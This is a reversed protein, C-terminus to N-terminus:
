PLPLIDLHVRRAPAQTASPIAAPAAGAPATTPTDAASAPMAAPASSSIGKARAAVGSSVVPATIPTPATAAPAAPAGDAADAADAALPVASFLAAPAAPAMSAAPASSPVSAESIAPAASAPPVESRRALRAEASGSSWLSLSISAGLLIVAAACRRLQGLADAYRLSEEERQLARSLDSFLADLQPADPAAAPHVRRELARAWARQQPTLHPHSDPM